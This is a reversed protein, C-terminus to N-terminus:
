PRKGSPRASASSLVITQGPRPSFMQYKDRALRRLQDVSRAENYQLEVRNISERLRAESLRLQDIRYSIRVSELRTWVFASTTLAGLIIFLVFRINVM